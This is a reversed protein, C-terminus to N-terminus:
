PIDQTKSAAEAVPESPLSALVDAVDKQGAFRPRQLDPSVHRIWIDAVRAPHKRRIADYIEPDKEGDDGVLIFNVWPLRRFIEEIHRTKYAVQDFLPESSRDDTVRKTILVGPLFWNRRLFDSISEHLQHPSASLYFLPLAAAYRDRALTWSYLRAMEPVAQRQAPNKLLSNALLRSKDTVESVLITDDLDSILGIRNEHAVVLLRGEGVARASKVTVMHTGMSIALHVEVRFYGESDTRTQIVMEGIRIEVPEHKREDNVLKRANRWLNRLRGDDSAAPKDDRKEVVRGEIVCFEGDGYAPYVTILDGEARAPLIAALLLALLTLPLWRKM